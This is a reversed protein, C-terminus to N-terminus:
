KENVKLKSNAPVVHRSGDEHLITVAGAASVRECFGKITSSGNGSGEFIVQKHLYKKELDTPERKPKALM